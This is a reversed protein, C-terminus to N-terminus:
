RTLEGGDTQLAATVIRDVAEGDINALFGEVHRVARQNNGVM